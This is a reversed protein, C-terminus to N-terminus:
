ACDRPPAGPSPSKRRGSQRATPFRAVVARDAEVLRPRTDAPGAEPFLAVVDTIDIMGCPRGRGDIVPLESIKREAMMAIADLMMSGQVVSTPRATMVARIPRDLAADRNHEFLRALDSDTFLGALKGAKDVLMIAGSRRGSRSQEVFVERVTHWQPALRCEAPPRMFEDVKSLQRGLSGAPHFRAFDERRFDRMRSTVLALADGLALMATTSTSPALGHRCAEQLPGLEITVHAARGLTCNRDAAVAIIQVGFATLSPLLRVVEETEGSQSFVLVVDDAHVRGLDGHVAEAPHLYHSRTGTSALTAATKRAILGAKGMGTAIVSGRCAFLADVARCFEGNLRRALNTVARGELAIIERAYGLQDLPGAPESTTRRPLSM